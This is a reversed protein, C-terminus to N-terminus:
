GPTVNNQKAPPEAPESLEEQGPSQFLLLTAALVGLVDAIWDGLTMSRRVYHQLWEDFVAYAAYVAAWRLLVVGSSSRRMARLHRGGLLTLVFYVLFHLVKDGHRVGFTVDPPRPLHTAVFLASWYGLWVWKSLRTLPPPPEDPKM